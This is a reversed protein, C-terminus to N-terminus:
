ISHIQNVYYKIAKHIVDQKNVKGNTGLFCYGICSNGFMVNMYDFTENSYTPVKKLKLIRYDEFSFDNKLM